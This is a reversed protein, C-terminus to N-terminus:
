HMMLVPLDARQILARTVGGFVAERLPGHGYGGVVLLDAELQAAAQSLRQSAERSEGGVCRTEASIGQWQLQKALDQLTSANAANHEEVSLLVVRGAQKLLPMAVTLARAAEPTEKWGVVITSMRSTKNSEPVILIPRGCGMLLWEILGNPMLDYTHQRGLVVLDSHRAHIMLRKEIHDTEEIWQATVAALTTPARQIAVEAAECFRKFHELAGASLAEDRQKLNDLAEGLAPGICFQVHPSRVAAECVSLRLHYFDLHAALPRAVALATAFVSDDTKTGSAPVFITKIMDVEPGHPPRQMSGSHYEVLTGSRVM